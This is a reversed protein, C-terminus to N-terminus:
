ATGAPVENMMASERAAKIRAQEAQVGALGPCAVSFAMQLGRGPVGDVTCPLEKVIALGKMAEGAGRTFNEITEAAWQEYTKGAEMLQADTIAAQQQATTIDGEHMVILSARRMAGLITKVLVDARAAAM